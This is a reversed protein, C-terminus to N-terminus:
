LGYAWLFEVWADDSNDCTGEADQLAAQVRQCFSDQSVKLEGFSGIWGIQLQGKLETNLAVLPAASDQNWGRLISRLRECQNRWQVENDYTTFCLTSWECIFNVLGVQSAFWLFAGSGGGSAPPADSWAFMGWTCGRPDRDVAAEFQELAQAALVEGTIDSMFCTSTHHYVKLM